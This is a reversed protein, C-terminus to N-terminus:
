CLSQLCGTMGDDRMFQNKLDTFNNLWGDRKLNYGMDEFDLTRVNLFYENHVLVKIFFKRTQFFFHVSSNPFCLHFFYSLFIFPHIRFLIVLEFLNTSSQLDLDNMGFWDEAVYFEETHAWNHISRSVELDTAHAFVLVGDDHLNANAFLLCFRSILLLDNTGSM